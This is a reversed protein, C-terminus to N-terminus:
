ICSLQGRGGGGGGLVGREEVQLRRRNNRKIKRDMELMEEM